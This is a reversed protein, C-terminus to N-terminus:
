TYIYICVYTYLKTKRKSCIHTNNENILIDKIVLILLVTYILVRWLVWSCHTRFIVRGSLSVIRHLFQSLRWCFFLCSPFRKHGHGAVYKPIPKVVHSSWTKTQYPMKFYKSVIVAAAAEFVHEWFLDSNKRSGWLSDFPSQKRSPLVDM